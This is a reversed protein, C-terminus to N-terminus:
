EQRMAEVPRLRAARLAPWVSALGSVLFLGVVAIVLPEMRFAGMMVPDWRTGMMTTESM